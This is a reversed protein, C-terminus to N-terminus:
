IASFYHWYYVTHLDCLTTGIATISDELCRIRNSATEFCSKLTKPRGSANKYIHEVRSGVTKTEIGYLMVRYHLNRGAVLGSLNIFNYTLYRRNIFRNVKCLNWECNIVADNYIIVNNPYADSIV